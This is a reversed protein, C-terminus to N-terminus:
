FGELLWWLYWGLSQYEFCGIDPEATGDRNGDVPVPKKDFDETLGVETGTDICPSSPRLHFNTTSLFRPATNISNADETSATKWAALTDIDVTADWTWFDNGEPYFDNTDYDETGGVSTQQIHMTGPNYSINNKLTVGITEAGASHIKISAYESDVITNNYLNAATINVGGTAHVDIGIYNDIVKNNYATVNAAIDDTSIILGRGGDHGACETNKLVNGYITAATADEIWIGAGRSPMDYCGDNNGDFESEVIVIPSAGNTPDEILLGTCYNDNFSSNQIDIGGCGGAACHGIDLGHLKNGNFTSTTITVDGYATAAAHVDMGAGDLRTTNDDFSCGSIDITGSINDINVGNVDNGDFSCDIFALNGGAAVLFGNGGTADCIVETAIINPM